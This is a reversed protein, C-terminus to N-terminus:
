LRSSISVVRTVRRVLASAHGRGQAQPSTYALDLYVMSQGEAGIKERIVSDLKTRSETQRRRQEANALKNFGRYLIGVVWEMLRQKWSKPSRSPTESFTTYSIILL